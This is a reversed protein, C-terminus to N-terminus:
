HVDVVLIIDKTVYLIKGPLDASHSLCVHGGSWHPSILHLGHQLDGCHLDVLGHHLGHELQNRVGDDQVASRITFM